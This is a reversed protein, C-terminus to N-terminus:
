QEMTGGILILPNPRASRTSCYFGIFNYVRIKYIEM